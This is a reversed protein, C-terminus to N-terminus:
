GGVADGAARRAETSPPAAGTTSLRRDGRGTAPAAWTKSDGVRAQFTQLRGKDKRVPIQEQVVDVRAARQGEVTGATGLRREDEVHRLAVHAAAAAETDLASRCRQHNGELAGPQVAHGRGRGRHCWGARHRVPSSPPPAFAEKEPRNVPTYPLPPGCGGGPIAAFSSTLCAAGARRARTSDSSDRGSPTRGRGYNDDGTKATPAAVRAQVQVERSREAAQTDGAVKLSQVDGVPAERQAVNGQARRTDGRRPARTEVHQRGGRRAAPRHGHAAREIALSRGGRHREM